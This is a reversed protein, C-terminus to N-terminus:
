LSIFLSSEFFHSPISALILSGFSQVPIDRSRYGDPQQPFGSVNYFFHISREASNSQHEKLLLRVPPCDVMGAPIVTTRRSNHPLKKTLYRKEM